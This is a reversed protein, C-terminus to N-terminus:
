QPLLVAEIRRNVSRGTDDLPTARPAFPGVWLAEIRTPDLGHDAILRARVSRAEALGEARTQDGDAPRDSHAVIALRLDPRQTMLAALVDLAPIPDPDLTAGAGFDIDEIVLRGTEVLARAMEAPATPAARKVETVQVWISNRGRSVLLALADGDGNLASVFRFDALDVFMDPAPVVDIAFRFDFGGCVKDQCAFVPSYGAARVQETLPQITQQTTVSQELRWTRRTVHGTVRLTDMGNETWPGAPLAYVVDSVRESVGRAAEPLDPEFARAPAAGALCLALILAAGTRIM